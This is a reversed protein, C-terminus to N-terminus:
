KWFSMESSVIEGMEMKVNKDFFIIDGFPLSLERMRPEIPGARNLFTESSSLFDREISQNM